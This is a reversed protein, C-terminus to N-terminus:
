MFTMQGNQIRFTEVFLFGLLSLKMPMIDYLRKNGAKMDM